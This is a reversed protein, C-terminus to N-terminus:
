EPQITPDTESVTRFGIYLSRDLASEAHRRETLQYRDEPSAFNGGRVIPVLRDFFEPHTDTTSTWESVNGCTAVVGYPSADEPM